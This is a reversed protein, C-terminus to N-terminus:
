VAAAAVEDVDEAEEGDEGVSLGVSVADACYVESVVKVDVMRLLM